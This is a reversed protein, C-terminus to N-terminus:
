FGAIRYTALWLLQIHHVTAIYEYHILLSNSVQYIYLHDVAQM